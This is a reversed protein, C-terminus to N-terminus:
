NKILQVAVAKDSLGVYEFEVKFSQAVDLLAKHEHSEWFAGDFYNDFILITNESLKKIITELVFKTPSYSDADLHILIVDDFNIKKAMFKPLTDEFWGPILSVNKRVKPLHNELNFWGAPRHTGSWDEKLGVFSDFGYIECDSFMDALDNISKGKYVGFELVIRNTIDGSNSKRILSFCYNWLKNRDGFIMATQMNKYAYEAAKYNAINELNVVVPAIPRFRFPVVVLQYVLRLPKGIVINLGKFILNRM